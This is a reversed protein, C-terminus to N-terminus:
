QWIESSKKLLLECQIRKVMELVIAKTRIQGWNCTLMFFYGGNSSSQLLYQQNLLLYFFSIRLQLTRKFFLRKKKGLGVVFFYMLIKAKLKRVRYENLVAVGM